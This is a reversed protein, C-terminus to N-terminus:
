LLKTIHSPLRPFGSQPYNLNIGLVYSKEKVSFFYHSCYAYTTFLSFICKPLYKCKEGCRGWLRKVLFLKTTQDCLIYLFDKKRFKSFKVTWSEFTQSLTFPTRKITYKEKLM